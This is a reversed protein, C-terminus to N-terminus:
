GAAAVDRKPRDFQLAALRAYLGGQRVLEDHTGTAAVRGQDIVVIRSAKQVTALRHAIVLTTRGEMLKDLAEQVARESEADLASTAEDLLLVPADRLIARAIALRQRQGGSLRVGKEGLFTKFGDPLRDLFEAAHAAVAAARVEADSAEPRGYRINEWADASFIVPEQPVLGIRRRITQPDAEALNVGDLRVVGADPDYFRLLLQFVTTKGAGSPGVLAVREGPRVDLSLGELAAVDPRSPYHFRVAEFAVRGQPPALLPVPAPPAKVAPETALLEIIREMAGAARQLDGIVESIAGASSAALIAYFVFSSLAGPSIKGALMDHGGIWLVLAVAGFVLLIVIATLIARMATRRIAVAFADEVRRAFRTRDLEEHTFAQVTRVGGLSEDVYAGVDAIRDQSERSLRRVRRGFALIPVLVLPIIALATLMLKASTIAMMATAGILILTNRLAVSASSGIVTQVLTTDTTIRTIIEGTRTVEYFGPSLELVRAYVARRLDAVIREGLWTVLYFRGFTAFAAVVVVGLLAIVTRDLLEANGSALGDDILHRLAWGLGLVTAAAILLFIAAGALRFRYPRLFPWLPKLAGLNRSPLRDTSAAM